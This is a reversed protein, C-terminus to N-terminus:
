KGSQIISQYKFDSLNRNIRYTALPGMCSEWEKRKKRPGEPCPVDWEADLLFDASELLPFKFFEM